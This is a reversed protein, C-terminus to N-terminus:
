PTLQASATLCRQCLQRFQIAIQKTAQYAVKNVGIFHMFGHDLRVFHLHDVTTGCQLLATAYATGEDQLVDYGGTVLVTAPLPHHAVEMQEIKQELGLLPSVCHDTSTSSCNNLYHQYFWHRDATSLFMSDAFRQASSWQRSRDTGPYILLSAMVQNSFEQALVAALTAGASDGGVAIHEPSVGFHNAHQRVWAMAARADNLGAPFPHEPALRYAVSLVQMGTQQCLLRCVDDHSDLDGIVFGGGHFYLLLAPLQGSPKPQYHRAALTHSGLVLNIDYHKAVEFGYQLVQMSRTMKARAQVPQQAALQQSARSSKLKGILTILLPMSDQQYVAPLRAHVAQEVSSLVRDTQRLVKNFWTQNSPQFTM